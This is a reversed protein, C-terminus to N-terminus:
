MCKSSYSLHSKLIVMHADKQKKCHKDNNASGMLYVPAGSTESQINQEQQQTRFHAMM